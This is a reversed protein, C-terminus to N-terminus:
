TMLHLDADTPTAEVVNDVSVSVADVIDGLVM